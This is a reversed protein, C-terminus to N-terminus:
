LDPLIDICNQYVQKALVPDKLGIQGSIARAADKADLGEEMRELVDFCSRLTISGCLEEADVEPSTLYNIVRSYGNYVWSAEKEPYGAKTLIKVFTDPDPDDMMYPSFRSALADNLEQSGATGVNMTAFVITFPNRYTEIYGDKMILYPKELAQGLAGMTNGPKVLNIEELVVIGGNEWADLFPSGVFQLKGDVVKTMGEYTDEETNPTQVVVYLPVHFTAAIMKILETKGTGPRGPLICNIVSSCAEIGKKGVDLAAVTENMRKRIKNFIMRFQPTVVYDELEKADPIRSSQEESWEHAIFYKGDMAEDKDFGHAKKTGGESSGPAKEAEEPKEETIDDEKAPEVKEFPNCPEIIGTECSKHVEEMNLACYAADISPCNKAFGYYFTDSALYAANRRIDPDVREDMMMKFADRFQENSRAFHTVLPYLMAMTGMKKITAEDQEFLIHFDSFDSMKHETYTNYRKESHRDYITSYLSHYVETEEKPAYFLGAFADPIDCFKAISSLKPDGPTGAPRASSYSSKAKGTSGIKAGGLSKIIRGDGRFSGYLLTSLNLTKTTKKEM